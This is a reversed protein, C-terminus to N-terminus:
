NEVITHTHGQAFDAVKTVEYCKMCYSRYGPGGMSKIFHGCHNCMLVAATAIVGRRSERIPRFTYSRQDSEWEYDGHEPKFPDESYGLIM